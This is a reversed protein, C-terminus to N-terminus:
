NTKCKEGHRNEGYESSNKIGNNCINIAANLDRDIELGCECKYMRDSLKLDEKLTGCNSCLKSSPFFRDIKIIETDYEIAKQNLKTIFKGWSAYHIAHSLKSNKIM